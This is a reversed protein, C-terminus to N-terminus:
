SSPSQPPVRKQVEDWITRLGLKDAWDSVYNRDVRPSNVKLISAIDRLHKDSQGMEYFWLKKVIIDEPAVYLAPTDPSAPVRRARSLQLKDHPLDKPIIFDIKLGSDHHIVNFQERHELAWTIADESVYFQDPPFFAMLDKVRARPLDVVIDVDNTLRFEGYYTSAMSGTVAYPISMRELARAAYAMLELPTV